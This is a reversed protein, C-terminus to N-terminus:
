NLTALVFVFNNRQIGTPGFHDSAMSKPFVSVVVCKNDEIVNSTAHYYAFTSVFWCVSLASRVIVIRVHYDLARPLEAHNIAFLLSSFMNM